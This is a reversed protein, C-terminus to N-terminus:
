RPLKQAVLLNVKSLLSVVIAECFSTLFRLNGTEKSLSDGSRAEDITSHPNRRSGAENKGPDPKTKVPIGAKDMINLDNM